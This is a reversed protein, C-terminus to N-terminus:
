VNVKRKTAESRELDNRLRLKTLISDHIFGSLWIYPDFRTPDVHEVESKFKLKAECQEFAFKIDPIPVGSSVYQRIVKALNPATIWVSPFSIMPRAGTNMYRNSSAVEATIPSLREEALVLWEDDIVDGRSSEGETSNENLESVHQTRITNPVNSTAAPQALTPEVVTARENPSPEVIPLPLQPANPTEEAAKSRRRSEASARGAERAQERKADYAAMRECLGPSWLRDATADFLGADIAADIFAALEDDTLRLAYALAPLSERDISLKESRRLQETLVWFLGYWALAHLGPADVDAQSRSAAAVNLRLFKPNLSADADHLFAPSERKRGPTQAHSKEPSSIM